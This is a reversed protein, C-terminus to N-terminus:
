GQIGVKLLIIRKNSRGLSSGITHRNYSRLLLVRLNVQVPSREVSCAGELVQQLGLTVVNSVREHVILVKQKRSRHESLGQGTGDSLRGSHCQIRM